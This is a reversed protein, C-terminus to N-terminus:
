MIVISLVSFFDFYEIVQSTWVDSSGLSSGCHQHLQPNNWEVGCHPDLEHMPWSDILKYQLPVEAYNINLKTKPLTLLESNTWFKINIEGDGTVVGLMIPGASSKSQSYKIRKPHFIPHFSSSIQRIHRPM